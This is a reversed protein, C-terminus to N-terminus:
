RRRRRATALGLCFLGTVIGTPEPVALTFNANDIGAGPIIIFDLSLYTGSLLISGYASRPGALPPLVGPPTGDATGPTADFILPGLVSLGDGGGGNGSLLTMGTLGGGISPSFDLFSFDLNAVQFIVDTMPTAFLMSVFGVGGPVQSFGVRDAAPATVAYVPPHSWQPSTGAITTFGVGPAVIELTTNTDLPAATFMGSIGVGDLTGFFTPGLNATGPTFSTIDMLGAFCTARTLLIMTTLAAFRSNM